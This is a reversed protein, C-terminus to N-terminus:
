KITVYFLKKNNKNKYCVKYISDLENKSSLRLLGIPQYISYSDLSTDRNNRPYKQKFLHKKVKANNVNQTPYNKTTPLQGTYQLINLLKGPRERSSTWLM